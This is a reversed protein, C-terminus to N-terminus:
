HKTKHEQNTREAWTTQEARRQMCARKSAHLPSRQLWGCFRSESMVAEYLALGTLDKFRLGPVRRLCFPSMFVFNCLSFSDAVGIFISPFLLFIRSGTAGERIRSDLAQTVIKRREVAKGTVM